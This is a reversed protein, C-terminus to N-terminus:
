LTTSDIKGVSYFLSSYIACCGCSHKAADRWYNHWPWCMFRIKYSFPLAINFVKKSFDTWLTRWFLGSKKTHSVMFDRCPTYSLLLSNYLYSCRLVVERRGLAVWLNSFCDKTFHRSICDNASLWHLSYSKRHYKSGMQFSNLEFLDTKLNYSLIIHCMMLWKNCYFHLKQLEEGNKTSSLITRRKRHGM